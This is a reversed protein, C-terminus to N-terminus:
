APLPDDEGLGARFRHPKGPPEAQGPTAETREKIKEDQPYLCYALEHKVASVLDDSDSWVNWKSYVFLNEGDPQRCHWQCLLLPVKQHIRPSPHM